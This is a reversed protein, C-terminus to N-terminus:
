PARQVPPPPVAPLAGTSAVAPLPPLAAPSPPTPLSAHLPPLAPLASSAPPASLAPLAPVALPTPLVRPVLTIAFAHAGDASALEVRAAQGDQTILRPSGLTALPHGYRMVTDLQLRGGDLRTATYEIEFPALMEKKMADSDYRATAKEGVHTLLRTDIRTPTAASKDFEITVATMVSAQEVPTAARASAGARLAYGGFGAVLICLAALRLGARHRASSIRHRQLMRVREVLPHTSQWSTALPPTLAVGQVKLLAGAYVALAAPAQERLVAADCSMEQDARLRRWAWWAIPNFWHLVLLAAALLNWANDARRLHVAEHLLMLRREDADFANDFDLPLVIRRRWVGLVAPGAGAPLREADTDILAEFRRQRLIMAGAFMAAGALWAAVAVLVYVPTTEVRTAPGAAWQPAIGAVDVHIVLADIAPHPLAVALLAVPLLLWGLYAAAAGFRRLVSAQLARVLVVAGSLMLTQLLLAHWVQEIV